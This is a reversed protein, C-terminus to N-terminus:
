LHWPGEPQQCAPAAPRRPRRAPDRKEGANQYMEDAEVVDDDLPNRDLGIRARDQLRHRLILLEKRDCGLERALQATPTGQAVGRLILLLQSPRRHTGHLSTATFANFVRGCSGCQFDVVPARHCRHIGLHQREGCRPCALGEPLLLEVLKTYCADEDLYDILSFDMTLVEVGQTTIGKLVGGGPTITL